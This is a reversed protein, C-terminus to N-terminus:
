LFKKTTTILRMTEGTKEQFADRRCNKTEELRRHLGRGRIALGDFNELFARKAFFDKSLIEAKYHCSRHQKDV